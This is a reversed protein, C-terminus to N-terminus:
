FKNLDFDDLEDRVDKARGVLQKFAHWLGYKKVARYNEDMSFV